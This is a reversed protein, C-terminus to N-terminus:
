LDPQRDARHGAGRRGGSKVTGCPARQGPYDANGPQNGSGGGLEDFSMVDTVGTVALKNRGELSLRHNVALAADEKMAMAM